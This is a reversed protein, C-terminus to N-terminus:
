SIPTPATLTVEYPVDDVVDDILVEGESQINSPDLADIGVDGGLGSGLLLTTLGIPPRCQTPPCSPNQVVDYEGDGVVLRMGMGFAEHPACFLDYVGAEEFTYLWYGATDIVPSSLAPVGDPVRQQRDLGPHYATVTHEPTVFDFAVVSGPEVNLGVQEFHFAGFEITIAPLNSQDIRDIDVDLDVTYNPTLRQPIDDGGAVSFGFQSDTLPPNPQDGPRAAAVTGAGLSLAGGAGLLKM